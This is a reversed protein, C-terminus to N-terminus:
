TAIIACTNFPHKGSFLVIRDDYEVVVQELGREKSHHEYSFLEPASLVMFSSSHYDITVM